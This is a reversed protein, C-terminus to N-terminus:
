SSSLSSLHFNMIHDRQGFSNHGSVPGNTCHLATITLGIIGGKLDKSDGSRGLLLNDQVTSGMYGKEGADRSWVSGLCQHLTGPLKMSTLICWFCFDFHRLFSAPLSFEASAGWLRRFSRLCCPLLHFWSWRQHFHTKWTWPAKEEAKKSSSRIM